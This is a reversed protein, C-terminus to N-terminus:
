EWCYEWNEAMTRERQTVISSSCGHVLVRGRLCLILLRVLWVIRLWTRLARQVKCVTLMEDAHYLITSKVGQRDVNKKRVCQCHTGSVTWWWWNTETVLHPAGENETSSLLLLVCLGWVYSHNHQSSAWGMIGQTRNSHHMSSAGIRM